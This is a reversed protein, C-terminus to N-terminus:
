AARMAKLATAWKLLEDLMTNGAKVQVEGPDFVGTESNVYQASFPISVAEKLPVM